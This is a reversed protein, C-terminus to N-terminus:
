LNPRLLQLVVELLLLAILCGAGGRLHFGCLHDKSVRYAIFAGISLTCNVDIRAIDLMVNLSRSVGQRLGYRAHVM